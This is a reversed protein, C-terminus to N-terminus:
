INNFLIEKWDPIPTYSLDNKRNIYSTLWILFATIVPKSLEGEICRVRSRCLWSPHFESLFIEMMNTSMEKRATVAPAQVSSVLCWTVSPVLPDRFCSQYPDLPLHRRSFSHFPPFTSCPQVSMIVEEGDPKWGFSVWWHLPLTMGKLVPWLM